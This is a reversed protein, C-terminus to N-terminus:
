KQARLTKATIKGALKPRYKQLLSFIDNIGNEKVSSWFIIEIQSDSNKRNRVAKEFLILRKSKKALGSDEHKFM